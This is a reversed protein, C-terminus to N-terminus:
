VSERSKDSPCQCRGEAKAGAEPGASSDEVARKLMKAEYERALSELQTYAEDYQASKKGGGANLRIRVTTLSQNALWKVATDLKLRFHNLMLDVADREHFPTQITLEFSSLRAMPKLADLVAEMGYSSSWVANRPFPRFCFNISTLAHKQEPTLYDIFNSLNRRTELVFTNIAFPLLHAEDYIQKCVFLLGIHRADDTLPSCGEHTLGWDHDIAKCSSDGAVTSQSQKPSADSSACIFYQIRNGDCLIHIAKGGLVLGYIRNRIEPALNLLPSETSNPAMSFTIVSDTIPTDSYQPESSSLSRSM